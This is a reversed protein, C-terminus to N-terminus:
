RAVDVHSRNCVGYSIMPSGVFGPIRSAQSIMQFCILAVEVRSGRFDAEVVTSQLWGIRATWQWGLAWSAGSKLVQVGGCPGVAGSLQSGRGWGWLRQLSRGSRAGDDRCQAAAWRLLSICCPLTVLHRHCNALSVVAQAALASCRSCISQIRKDESRNYQYDQELCQVIILFVFLIYHM